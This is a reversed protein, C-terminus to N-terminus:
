KGSSLQEGRQFSIWGKKNLYRLYMIMRENVPEIAKEYQKLLSQAIDHVSSEGDILRWTSSGFDDLELDSVYPKKVLWRLFKEVMKDHHFILYVKGNREEWEVQKKKPIYLLFNDEKHNNDKM